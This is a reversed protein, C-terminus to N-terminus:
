VEGDGEKGQGSEAERGRASSKWERERGVGGAILEPTDCENGGVLWGIRWRGDDSEEARLWSRWITRVITRKWEEQGATRDM